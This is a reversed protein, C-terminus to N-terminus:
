DNVEDQMIVPYKRLFRSLYVVGVVLILIMSITTLIPFGFQDQFYVVDLEYSFAYPIAYLLFRPVDLFAAMAAFFIFISAGMIWMVLPLGAVMQVAFQNAFVTLAVLTVTLLVILITITRLWRVKRKRKSGPKIQGVRPATIKRKAIFAGAIIAGYILVMLAIRLASRSDDELNLVHILIAPLLLLGLQLDMIGDEFTTRFAKKETNNLNMLTNMTM